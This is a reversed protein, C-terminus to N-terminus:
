FGLARHLNCHYIVENEFVKKFIYICKDDKFMFRNVM